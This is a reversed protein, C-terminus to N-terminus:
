IIDCLVSTGLITMDPVYSQSPACFSWGCATEVRIIDTLPPLTLGAQKLCFIWIILTWSYFRQSHASYMLKLRLLSFTLPCSQSQGEVTGDEPLTVLSSSLNQLVIIDYQALKTRSPHTFVAAFRLVVSGTSNVLKM